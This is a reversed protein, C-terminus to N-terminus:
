EFPLYETRVFISQTSGLAVVATLEVIDYGAGTEVVTESMNVNIGNADAGPVYWDTLNPSWKYKVIVGTSTSSRRYRLTLTRKLGDASCAVLGYRSSASNKDTGQFIEMIDAIGDNDTDLTGFDGSIEPDFGNVSEWVDSANDGDTDPGIQTIRYLYISGQDDATAGLTDIGNYEPASIIATDGDLFVSTGFKDQGSSDLPLIRMKQSWVGGNRIFIYAIGSPESARRKNPAGILAMDGQLSVSAGFDGTLAESTYIHQQQSWIGANRVFLYASGNDIDIGDIDDDKAGILANDGDLSVSCGFRDYGAADDARLKQQLIWDIGSRTYVYASGASTAMENDEIAGILVTDEDVCVSHGFRDGFGGDFATLKKQQTWSTGSRVFVYASGSNTGNQEDYPAGVIVTQGSFFVSSGFRDSSDGDSAYLIKQQSWTSGNRVFVYACGSESGKTDNGNAGVLATDGDLSVTLGFADRVQGNSALLKQQFSWAAGNRVFVYISGSLQGNDDDDPVGVIVTNGSLGVSVGARVGTANDGVTIKQSETWISAGLDFVYASGSQDGDDDDNGVGFIITDGSICVASGFEDNQERDSANLKQQLNWVGGSRVFVYASGTSGSSVDDGPAGILAKSGNISVAQGFYDSSGRDPATIKKELSWAAENRTYVYACGYNGQSFTLDNLPAGILAVDGDLSVSDGFRDGSVGDAAIIKEELEWVGSTRRYVYAAGNGSAYQNAGVLATDGDVSVSIGFLDYRVGDSPFLKQQESWGGGNRVFVYTAGRLDNHRQAGCIAVDGSLSVSAAFEDQNASDSGTFRAQEVWIGEIRKYIYASGKGYAAGGAAGASGIIATDGEICVSKGFLSDNEGVIKQSLKWIGNIRDFIHVSGTGDSAAGIIARNGDIHVSRGFADNPAGSGGVKPGLKSQFSTILPDIVVPYRADVAAVRIAFGSKEPVMTAALVVGDADWAKLDTYSMVPNGNEDSFQLDDSGISRGDLAEVVLGSVEIQLRLNGSDDSFKPVPQEIVYGHEWGNPKNKYWEIIGGEKHSELLCGEHRFQKTDGSEKLEIHVAWDSGQHGSLLRVGNELFRARIQQGPNSAAWIAGENEPMTQQHETVRHIEHRAESLAKLLSHQESKDIQGKDTRTSDMSGTFEQNKLTERMAVTKGMAEASRIPTTETSEISANGFAGQQHSDFRVPRVQQSHSRLFGPAVVLLLLSLILFRYNMPLFYSLM